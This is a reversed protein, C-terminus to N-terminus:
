ASKLKPIPGISDGSRAGFLCIDVLRRCWPITGREKNGISRRTRLGAKGAVLMLVVVWLFEVEVEFELGFSSSLEERSCDLELEM